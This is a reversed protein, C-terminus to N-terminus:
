KIIKYVDKSENFTSELVKSWVEKGEHSIYCMRMVTKGEAHAKQLEKQRKSVM